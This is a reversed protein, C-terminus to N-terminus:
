IRESKRSTKGTKKDKTYTIKSVEQTQKNAKYFSMVGDSTKINTLGSYSGGPSMEQEDPRDKINIIRKVFNMTENIYALILIYTLLSRSGIYVDDIIFFASLFKATVFTFLEILQMDTILM